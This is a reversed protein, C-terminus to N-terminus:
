QAAEGVRGRAVDLFVEELTRRGYRAILATPADDDEIPVTAYKSPKTGPASLETTETDDSFTDPAPPLGPSDVVAYASLGYFQPDVQRLRQALAIEGRLHRM